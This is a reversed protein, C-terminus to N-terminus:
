KEEGVRVFYFPIGARMPYITFDNDSWIQMSHPSKEKHVTATEKGKFLLIFHDYDYRTTNELLTFRYSKNTESVRVLIHGVINGHSEQQYEYIGNM